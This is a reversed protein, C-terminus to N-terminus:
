GKKKKSKRVGRRTAAWSPSNIIEDEGTKGNGEEPTWRFRKMVEARRRVRVRPVGSQKEKEWTTPKHGRGIWLIPALLTRDSGAHRGFRWDLRRGEESRAGNEKKTCSSEASPNNQAWPKGVGGRKKLARNGRQNGQL